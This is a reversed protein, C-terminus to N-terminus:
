IGPNKPRRKLLWLGVIGTAFLVLTAPEPTPVAALGGVNTSIATFNVLELADSPGGGLTKDAKTPKGTFIIRSDITSHMRGITPDMALLKLDDTSIGYSDFRTVRTSGTAKSSLHDTLRGWFEYTLIDGAEPGGNQRTKDILLFQTGSLTTDLASGSRAPGGQPAAFHGAYMTALAGCPLLVAMLCLASLQQILRVNM